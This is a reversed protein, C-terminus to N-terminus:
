NKWGLVVLSLLCLLELYAGCRGVPVSYYDRKAGPVGGGGGGGDGDGKKEDGAKADAM